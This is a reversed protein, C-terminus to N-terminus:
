KIEFLELMRDVDSVHKDYNQATSTYTIVYYIEGKLVIAQKFKYEVGGSKGSFTGVIGGEIGAVTQVASESEAFDTLINKYKSTCTKWYEEAAIDSDRMIYQVTLNSRDSAYVTTIQGSEDVSWSEPAFLIYPREKSSALKMQEPSDEDDYKKNEGDNYPEAFKFYGIIGLDDEDPNGNMDEVRAEYEAEPASFILVYVQGNHVAIIQMFKYTVAATQESDGVGTNMKATYVYKGATEGGLVTTGSEKAIYTYDVLEASLKFSCINWYDAVTECGKADDPTYVSISAAPMGTLENSVSYYASTIGSSTNPMWGQTPVYLRFTDGDRAILQYGDPVDKKSCGTFALASIIICFTLILIGVRKKLKMYRKKM